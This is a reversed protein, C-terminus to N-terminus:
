SLYVRFNRDISQRCIPCDYVKDSCSGCTVFHGCPLFCIEREHDMCIKCLLLPSDNIVEEVQQVPPKSAALIEEFLEDLSKYPSTRKEVVSWVLTEPFVELAQEIFDKEAGKVKPVYKYDRNMVLFCCDPNFRRHEEWPNEESKWNALALNCFFCCVVDCQGTYYFGCEALKTPTPSARPWNEYTLFRRNVDSMRPHKPKYDCSKIVDNVDTKKEVPPPSSIHVDTKKEVTPPSSITRPINGVNKGLLFPCKPSKKIHNRLPNVDSIYKDIIISIHCFPCQIMLDSRLFFGAEAFAKPSNKDGSWYSGFSDLRKKESKMEEWLIDDEAPSAEAM